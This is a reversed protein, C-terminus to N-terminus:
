FINKKRHQQRQQELKYPGCESLLWALHFLDCFLRGYGIAFFAKVFLLLDVIELFLNGTEFRFQTILLSGGFFTKETGRCGRGLNRYFRIAGVVAWAISATALNAMFPMASGTNTFLICVSHLGDMKSINARIASACEVGFAGFGSGDYVTLRDFHLLNQIM